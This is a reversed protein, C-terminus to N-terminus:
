NFMYELNITAMSRSSVDTNYGNLVNQINNTANGGSVYQYSAGLYLPVRTSMKWNAEINIEPLVRNQRSSSTSTSGSFDTQDVTIKEVAYQVGPKIAINFKSNLMYTINLLLDAGYASQQAYVAQQVDNYTNDHYNSYGAEPGFLFDSTTGAPTLYGLYARGSFGGITNSYNTTTSDSNISGWGAAIGLYSHGEPASQNVDALSLSSLTMTSVAIIINRLKM